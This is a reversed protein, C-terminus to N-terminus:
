RWGQRDGRACARLASHVVMKMAILYPQKRKAHIM